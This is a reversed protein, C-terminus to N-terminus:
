GKRAEGLDSAPFRVTEIGERITASTLACRSDKVRGPASASTNVLGALRAARM